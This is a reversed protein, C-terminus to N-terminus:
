RTLDRLQAIVKRWTPDRRSGPPNYTRDRSMVERAWVALERTLPISAGYKERRLVRDPRPCGKPRRMDAMAGRFAELGRWPEIQPLHDLCTAVAELQPGSLDLTVMAEDRFRRSVERAELYEVLRRSLHHAAEAAEQDVSDPASAGMYGVYTAATEWPLRVDEPLDESERGDGIEGRFDALAERLPRLREATDADPRPQSTTLYARVLLAEDRELRVTYVYGPGSCQGDHVEPLPVHVPMLAGELLRQVGRTAVSRLARHNPHALCEVLVTVKDSAARVRRVAWLLTRHAAIVKGRLSEPADPGVVQEFEVGEQAAVLSAAMRWAAGGVVPDDDDRAIAALDGVGLARFWSRMVGRDSEKLGPEGLYRAALTAARVREGASIATFVAHARATGGSESSAATLAARAEALRSQAGLLIPLRAEGFSAGIKEDMRALEADLADGAGNWALWGPVMLCSLRDLREVLTRALTRRLAALVEAEPVRAMIAAECCRWLASSTDGLALDTLALASATAAWEPGGSPGECLIGRLVDSRKRAQEAPWGESLWSVEALAWEVRSDPEPMARVAAQTVEYAAAVLMLHFPRRPELSALGRALDAFQRASACAHIATTYAAGFPEMWSVDGASLGLAARVVQAAEVREMGRDIVDEMAEAKGRTVVRRM